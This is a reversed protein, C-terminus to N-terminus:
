CVVLYVPWSVQWSLHFRSTDLKQYICEVYGYFIVTISTQRVLCFVNKNELWMNSLLERTKRGRTFSISVVFFLKPISGWLSLRWNCTVPFDSNVFWCVRYMHASPLSLKTIMLTGTHIGLACLIKKVTVIELRQLLEIANRVCVCSPLM